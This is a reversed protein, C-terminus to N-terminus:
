AKEADEALKKLTLLMKREIVFQVPENAVVDVVKELGSKERERFRIILRTHEVNEQGALKYPHLLISWTAAKETGLDIGLVLSRKAEMSVVPAPPYNGHISVVDGVNLDQWQPEGSEVTAIDADIVNELWTLHYVGGRNEGLETLFPWITDASAEVTIAHTISRAGIILEDGPMAEKAEEDTAGWTLHWPRIVKAYAAAAAAIGGVALLAGLIKGKAGCGQSNEEGQGYNGDGISAAEDSMTEPTKTVSEM